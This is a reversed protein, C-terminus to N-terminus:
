AVNKAGTFNILRRNLLTTLKKILNPSVEKFTRYISLERGHIQQLSQYEEEEGFYYQQEIQNFWVIYKM